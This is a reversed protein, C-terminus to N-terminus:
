RRRRLELPESMFPRVGPSDELESDDDDDLDDIAGLVPQEALTLTGGCGCCRMTGGAIARPHICDPNHIFRGGDVVGVLIDCRTCSVTWSREPLPM